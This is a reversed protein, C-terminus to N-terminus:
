TKSKSGNWRLAHRVAEKSGQIQHARPQRGGPPVQGDYCENEDSMKGHDRPDHRGPLFPIHVSILNKSTRPSAQKSMCRNASCTPIEFATNRSVQWMTQALLQPELMQVVFQRSLCRGPQVPCASCLSERWFLVQRSVTSDFSM